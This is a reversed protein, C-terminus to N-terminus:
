RVGNPTSGLVPEIRCTTLLQRKFTFMGRVGNLQAFTSIVPEPVAAPVVTLNGPAYEAVSGYSNRGESILVHFSVEYLPIINFM